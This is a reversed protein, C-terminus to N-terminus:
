QDLEQQVHQAVLGRLGLERAVRAGRESRATQRPHGCLVDTVDLGHQGVDVTDLADCAVARPLVTAPQVAAGPMVPGSRVVVHHALDVV